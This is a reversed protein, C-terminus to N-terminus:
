PQRLGPVEAIAAAVHEHILQQEEAPEREKITASSESRWVTKRTDPNILDILLTGETYHRVQVSSGGGYGYYGYMSNYSTVRTKDKSVIHFIVWIDADEASTATINRAAMERALASTIRQDTLSTGPQGHFQSQNDPIAYYSRIDSFEYDPDYDSSVKPTSSCAALISVLFVALFGRCLTHQSTKDAVSKLM